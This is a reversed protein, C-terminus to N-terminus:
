SDKSMEQINGRHATGRERKARVHDALKMYSQAIGIMINREASDRMHEGAELCALAKKQYTDPESM